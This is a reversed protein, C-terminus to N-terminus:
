RGSARKHAKAALNLQHEIDGALAAIESCRPSVSTELEQSLREFDVFARRHHQLMDEYSKSFEHDKGCCSGCAREARAVRALATGIKIARQKIEASQPPSVSSLHTNLLASLESAETHARALAMHANAVEERLAISSQAM